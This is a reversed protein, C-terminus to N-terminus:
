QIGARHQICIVTAAEGTTTIRSEPVSVVAQCVAVDEIIDWGSQQDVHIVPEPATDVLAASM